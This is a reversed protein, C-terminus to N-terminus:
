ARQYNTTPLVTTPSPRAKATHTVVFRTNTRAATARGREQQSQLRGTQRFLLISEQRTSGEGQRAHVVRLSTPRPPVQRAGTSQRGPTTTAQIALCCCLLLALVAASGFWSAAAASSRTTWTATALPAPHPPDNERTRM